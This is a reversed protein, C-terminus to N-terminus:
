FLLTLLHIINLSQNRWKVLKRFMERNEGVWPRMGVVMCNCTKLRCLGHWCLSSEGLWPIGLLDVAWVAGVMESFWKKLKVTKTLKRAVQQKTLGNRIIYSDIWSGLYVPLEYRNTQHSRILFHVHMMASQRAPFNLWPWLEPGHCEHPYLRVVCELTM